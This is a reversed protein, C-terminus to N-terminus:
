QLLARRTSDRQFLSEWGEAISTQGSTLGARHWTACGVSMSSTREQTRCLRFVRFM